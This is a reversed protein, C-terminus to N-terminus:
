KEGLNDDIVVTKAPDALGLYAKKMAPVADLATETRKQEPITLDTSAVKKAEAIMVVSADFCANTTAIELAKNDCNFSVILDGYVTLVVRPAPMKLVLYTYHPTAMFM